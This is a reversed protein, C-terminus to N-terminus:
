AFSDRAHAKNKWSVEAVGAGNEKRFHAGSLQNEASELLALCTHLPATHPGPHLTGRPLHHVQWCACVGESEKKAVLDEQEEQGSM